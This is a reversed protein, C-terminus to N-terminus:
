FHEVKSSKYHETDAKGDASTAFHNIMVAEAHKIVGEKEVNTFTFPNVEVTSTTQVSSAGTTTYAWGWDDEVVVYVYNPDLSLLTKSVVAGNTKTTNTVIVKTFTYWGTEGKGAKDEVTLDDTYPLPKNIINYEVNAMKEAITAGDKNWGKPRIRMIEFTASEGIRLGDKKITINVPLNEHPIDFTNIKDYKGTEKNLVYVGSDSTNTATGVGGTAAENAIIKFEIVLKKGAWFNKSPDLPDPVREGVWNGDGAGTSTDDLSYDFGTVIIQKTEPDLSKQASAFAVRTGWSTEPLAAQTYVSVNEDVWAQIEEDTMDSTDIPLAFSNSVYDQVQTSAGIEEESGGSASAIDKFISSLDVNGSADKSYDIGDDNATGTINLRGGYYSGWWDYTASASTYNSSVADLYRTVNDTASPTSSFTGVTFVKASYSSKISSSTNIATAATNFGTKNDFGQGGPEGDTFLVVTKNSDRNAGSLITNAHALGLDSQTGGRAIFAGVADKLSQVNDEVLTLDRVIQTRNYRKDGTTYTDDGVNDVSNSAFKVIAIRNHLREPRDGGGIKEKDNKEIEDIFLSTAQKLATMRSTGTAIHVQNGGSTKTTVITGTASDSYGITTGTGSNAWKRIRLYYTNGEREAYIRYWSSSSSYGSSTTYYYFYEVDSNAVTNYSIATNNALETVAGKNEDMSGSVDLVLVIDAPKTNDIVTTGGTAFAELTVTYLGNSDPGTVNKSTTVGGEEHQAFAAFSVLLLSLSTLVYKFINKM